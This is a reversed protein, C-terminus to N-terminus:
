EDDPIPYLVWEGNIFKPNTENIEDVRAQTLWHPTKAIPRELVAWTITVPDTDDILGLDYTRM